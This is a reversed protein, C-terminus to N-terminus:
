WVLTEGKQHMISLGDWRLTIGDLGLWVFRGRDAEGVVQLIFFTMNVCM